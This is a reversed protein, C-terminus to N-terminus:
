HIQLQDGTFTMGNLRSLVNQGLLSVKIGQEIVAADVNTIPKNAVHMQPIKTWRMSTPGGATEMTASRMANGTLGLREADGRTLVTVNAGTDVLFRVPQGGIHADLYFLGDKSRSIIFPKGPVDAVAPLQAASVDTELLARSTNAAAAVPMVGGLPAEAVITRADSEVGANSGIALVLAAFGAKWIHSRTKFM